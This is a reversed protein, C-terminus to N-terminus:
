TRRRQWWISASRGGVSAFTGAAAFAIMRDDFVGEGGAGPCGVGAQGDEEASGRGPGRVRLPSCADNSWGWGLAGRFATFLFPRVGDIGHCQKRESPSGRRESSCPPVIVHASVEPFPGPARLHRM